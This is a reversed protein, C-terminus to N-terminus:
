RAKRAGEHKDAFDEAAHKRTHLDRQDIDKARQSAMMIIAGLMLKQAWGCWGIEIPTLSIVAM